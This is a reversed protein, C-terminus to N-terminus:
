GLVDTNKVYPNRLMNTAVPKILYLRMKVERIFFDLHHKPYGFHQNIEQFLRRVSM